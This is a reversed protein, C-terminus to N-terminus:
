LDTLLSGAILKETYLSINHGPHKQSYSEKIINCVMMELKRDLEYYLGSLAYKIEKAYGQYFLNLIHEIESTKLFLEIKVM